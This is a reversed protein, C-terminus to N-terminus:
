GELCKSLGILTCAKQKTESSQNYTFEVYMRLTGSREKVDGYKSYNYGLITYFNDTINIYIDKKNNTNDVIIYGKIDKYKDTIKQIDYVYGSQNLNMNSIKEKAQKLIDNVMETFSATTRKNSKKLTGFLTCEKKTYSTCLNVENIKDAESKNYSKINGSKLENDSDFDLLM